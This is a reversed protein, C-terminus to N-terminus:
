GRLVSLSFLLLSMVYDIFSEAHGAPFVSSFLSPHIWLVTSVSLCVSLNMHENSNDKDTQPSEHSRGQAYQLYLVSFLVEADKHM